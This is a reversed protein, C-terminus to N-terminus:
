PAAARQLLAAADLSQPLGCDWYPAPVTVTRQAGRVLRLAPHELVANALSPQSARYGTLM